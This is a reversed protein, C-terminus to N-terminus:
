RIMGGGRAWKQVRMGRIGASYVNANQDVTVDHTWIMQGDYRGYEGWRELVNGDLDFRQIEAFDLPLTEGEEARYQGSSWYEGGDGVYISGDHHEVGWPRGFDDGQWHTWETVFEGEPTFIQIRSNGRDAVYVLGADDVTIGHPTTFQGPESGPEGWERIFTGDAEFHMVRSNGYGDSVYFTGDPAFALDTVGNFHSEDDGRVGREGLEMLIEGQPSLKLVIHLNNDTVWVNDESDVELGHPNRVMGAGIERILAGTEANLVMITPRTITGEEPLWTQDARHFFVVENASTVDLGTAEGMRFGAPPDPWGHVVAYEDGASSASTAAEAGDSDAPACGAVFLWVPTLLIVVGRVPSRRIM